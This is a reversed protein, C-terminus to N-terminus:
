KKLQSSLVMTGGVVVVAIGLHGTLPNLTMLGGLIMLFIGSGKM